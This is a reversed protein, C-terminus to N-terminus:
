SLFNPLAMTTQSERSTKITRIAIVQASLNFSSLSFAMTASIETDTYTAGSIDLGADAELEVVFQSRLDDLLISELPLTRGQQDAKAEYYEKIATIQEKIQSM